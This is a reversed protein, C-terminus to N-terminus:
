VRQTVVSSDDADKLWAVIHPDYTSHFMKYKKYGLFLCGLILATNTLWLIMMTTHPWSWHGHYVGQDIPKSTTVTLSATSGVKVVQETTMTDKSVETTTRTTESVIPFQEHTESFPEDSSSVIEDMATTSSIEITTEETTFTSAPYLNIQVTQTIPSTYGPPVNVRVSVAFSSYTDINETLETFDVTCPSSNALQRFVIPTDKKIETGEAM